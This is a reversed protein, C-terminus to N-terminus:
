WSNIGWFIKMQSHLKCIIAIKIVIFKHIAAIPINRLGHSPAIREVDLFFIEDVWNSYFPNRLGTPILRNDFISPMIYDFSSIPSFINTM